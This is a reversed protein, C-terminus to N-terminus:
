VCESVLDDVIELMSVLTVENYWLKHVINQVYDRSYSLPDSYESQLCNELHEVIKVGYLLAQSGFDKHDEVLYYDLKLEKNDELVLTRTGELYLKKMTRGMNGLFIWYNLATYM